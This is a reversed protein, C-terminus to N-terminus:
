LNGLDETAADLVERLAARGAARGAAEQSISGAKIRDRDRRKLTRARALLGRELDDPVDLGKKRALKIAKSLEHM